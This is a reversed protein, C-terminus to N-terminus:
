VSDGAIERPLEFFGAARARSVLLSLTAAPATDVATRGVEGPNRSEFFIEGADSLRLRYAPCTGFCLTRELMISDAASASAGHRGDMRAIPPACALIVLPATVWRAMSILRRRRESKCM